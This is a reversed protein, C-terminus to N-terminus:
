KHRSVLLEVLVQVQARARVARLERVTTYHSLLKFSM